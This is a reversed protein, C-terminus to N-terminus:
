GVYNGTSMELYGTFRVHTYIGDHIVTARIRVHLCVVSAARTCSGPTNESLASEDRTNYWTNCAGRVYTHALMCISQTNRYPGAPIGSSIGYAYSPFPRDLLYPDHRESESERTRGNRLTSWDHSGILLGRHQCIVFTVAAYYGRKASFAEPVMKKWGGCSIAYVNCFLTSQSRKMRGDMWKYRDNKRTEEGRGEGQGRKKRRNRETTLIRM